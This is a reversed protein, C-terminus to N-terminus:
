KEYGEGLVHIKRNPLSARALLRGDYGNFNHLFMPISSSHKFILNCNAHAVGRLKRTLHAPDRVKDQANSM